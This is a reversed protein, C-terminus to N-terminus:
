REVLSEFVDAARKVAAGYEVFALTRPPDTAKPRVRGTCYDM